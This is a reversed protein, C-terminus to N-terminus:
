VSHRRNSLMLKTLSTAHRRAIELVLPRVWTACVASFMAYRCTSKEVDLDDLNM